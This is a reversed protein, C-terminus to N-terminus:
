EVFGQVAYSVRRDSATGISPFEIEIRLQRVGEVFINFPTPMDAAILEYSQLLRGDGIFNVTVDRMVSGDVRGVYGSFFRFQGDLNHLSFKTVASALWRNDSFILADRYEVGGMSAASVQSVGGRWDDDWDRNPFRDFFPAATNLSTRAYRRGVIATHTRADYDVPLGLVESIARLSLFTRGGMVFPQMDEAFEAQQGNVVVNNGYTITVNRAQAAVTMVLSFVLACTAFGLIFIRAKHLKTKM